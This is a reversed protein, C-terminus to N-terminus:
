AARSSDPPRLLVYVLFAFNLGLMLLLSYLGILFGGASQPLGLGFTNLVQSVLTVLFCVRVPVDFAPMKVLSGDRQARIFRPAFFVFHCILLAVVVASSIAWSLQGSVGLHHPLVPFLAAFLVGLGGEIMAWFPLWVELHAPSLRTGGLAGIIGAFGTFAIAIEAIVQLTGEADM